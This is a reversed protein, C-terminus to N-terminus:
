WWPGSRDASAVAGSKWRHVGARDAPALVLEVFPATAIAAGEGSAGGLRHGPGVPGHGGRQHDHVVRDDLGWCWALREVPQPLSGASRDETLQRGPGHGDGM